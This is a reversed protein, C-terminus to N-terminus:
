AMDTATFGLPHQIRKQHRTQDFGSGMLAHGQQGLVARIRLQSREVCIQQVTLGTM